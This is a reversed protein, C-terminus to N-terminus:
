FMKPIKQYLLHFFEVRKFAPINKFNLAMEFSSNKSNWSCTALFDIM